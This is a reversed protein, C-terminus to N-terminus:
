GLGSTDIVGHNNSRGSLIEAEEIVGRPIDYRLRAKYVEGERGKIFELIRNREQVWSDEARDEDDYLKMSISAYHTTSQGGMVGALGRRGAAKNIDFQRTALIPIGLTTAAIKLKQTVTQTVVWPSEHRISDQLMYAGDIIMYGAGLAIAKAIVTDVNLSLGGELIHLRGGITGRISEAYEHLYNMGFHSVRGLRIPKSDVHADLGIIRRGIALAMMEMTVVLTTLTEKEKVSQLASKLAIFTKGMGSHASLDILDGPMFGGTVEDMYHFGTPVGVLGISGQARRHEQLVSEAVAHYSYLTRRISWDHVTENMRAVTERAQAYEGSELLSQLTRSHRSLISSAHRDKVLQVWFTFPEDPQHQIFSFGRVIGQVVEPAPMTSHMTFHEGVFQFAQREPGELFYDATIGADLATSYGHAGSDLLARILYAGASM